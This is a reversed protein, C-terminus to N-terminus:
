GRDLKHDIYVQTIKVYVATLNLTRGSQKRMIFSQTRFADHGVGQRDTNLPFHPNEDWRQRVLKDGAIGFRGSTLVKAFSKGPQM